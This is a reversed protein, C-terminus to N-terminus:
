YGNFKMMENLGELVLNSHAFIQYKTSEVFYNSDGGSILTAVSGFKKIMLEIFSELEFIAGWIAGNQLAETTSKGIVDENLVPEVLPLKDTYAHMAQLRMQVGPAINGGHYNGAADIFDYTLCTGASVCICNEGPYKKNAALVSALRDKGLTNPTKYLINIPVKVHDDVYLLHFRQELHHLLEESIKRTSIVGLEFTKYNISIQDILEQNPDKGKFHYILEDGAFVGYKCTSNGIDLVLRNM